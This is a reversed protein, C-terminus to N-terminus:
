CGASEPSKETGLAPLPENKGRAGKLQTGGEGKWSGLKRLGGHSWGPGRMGVACGEGPARRASRSNSRGPTQPLAQSQGTLM